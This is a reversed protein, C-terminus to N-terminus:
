SLVLLALHVHLLLITLMNNDPRHFPLLNRLVSQTDRVGYDYRRPRCGRLCAGFTLQCICDEVGGEMLVRSGAPGDNGAVARAHAGALHRKGEVECRGKEVPRLLLAGVQALRADFFVRTKAAVYVGPLRSDICADVVNGLHLKLSGVVMRQIDNAQVCQLLVGRLLVVLSRLAPNNQGLFALLANRPLAVLNTSLLGLRLVHLSVYTAQAQKCGRFKLSGRVYATM